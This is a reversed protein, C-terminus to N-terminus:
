QQLRKASDHHVQLSEFLFLCIGSLCPRSVYALNDFEMIVNTNHNTTTKYKMETRYMNLHSHYRRMDEEEKKLSGLQNILVHM